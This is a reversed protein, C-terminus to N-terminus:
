DLHSNLWEILRQDLDNAGLMATGHATGDRLSSDLEVRAAQELQPLCEASPGDGRTAELFVPVGQLAKMPELAAVGRYDLGPSLLVLGKVGEPHASVHTLALNAGISAGIVFKPLDPELEDLKTLGAEIDATAAQWDADTFDEPRKNQPAWSRQHGRLDLALSSMGEKALQPSFDNWDEATRGLMHVLLVAARPKEGGSLYNAFLNAGDAARFQVPEAGALREVGPITAAMPGGGGGGAPGPAPPGPSPPAPTTPEAPPKACAVALLGGVLCMLRTM